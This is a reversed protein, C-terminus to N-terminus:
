AIERPPNISHPNTAHGAAAGAGPVDIATITGDATRLYGHFVNNLDLYQGTIVGSPNISLSYTGQQPGLGAGPVDFTTFLGTHGGEAAILAFAGLTACLGVLVRPSCYFRRTM